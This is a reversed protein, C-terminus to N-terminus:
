RLWDGGGVGLAGVVACGMELRARAGFLIYGGPEVASVWDYHNFVCALNYGEGRGGCVPRTLAVGADGFEGDVHVTFRSPTARAAYRHLGEDFRCLVDAEPLQEGADEDLVCRAAGRQARGG